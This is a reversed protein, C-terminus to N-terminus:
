SMGGCHHFWCSRRGFEYDCISSPCTYLIADTEWRELHTYWKFSRLRSRCLPCRRRFPLGVPHPRYNSRAIVKDGHKIRGQFLESESRMFEEVQDIHKGHIQRDQPFRSWFVM